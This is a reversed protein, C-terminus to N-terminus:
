FNFYIFTSVQSFSIVSWVFLLAIGWCFRSSFTTREAITLANTRQAIILASVTLLLIFVALYLYNILQPATLEIFQRVVYVEPLDIQAVLKYLYGTHKFALLNRWMQGAQSMDASRFFIVTFNFFTFTFFCGIWRPMNILFFKKRNDWVVAAGQLVGWVVFTWDAGHWLGSLSFVILTNLVARTRGRRSGGLPVYVYATFFRTLTMHWRQWFEKVSVAHYPLNFNVPLKINFMKGLGLAMDCYGSFDFYLEFTYALSVLLTSTTDLLYANDYGFNVALALNDALLVKKALGLVFLVIGQSFIVPDFRKLTPDALQPLLESHMVIPGAVLQPFFTVFAAYDILSYHPAKNKYRDIIFSLQQFTFFSIGLPLLLHKLNFDASFLRNINEIFFDYYKFYFILGLNFLIGGALGIRRRLPSNIARFYLSFVYNVLLSFIMLLLYYFNFYGYFWFSMVTLMVKAATFSQRRNLGYWLLLTLPLFIFIFLYSNFLM